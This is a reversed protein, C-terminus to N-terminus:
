GLDGRMGGAADQAAAAKVNLNQAVALRAAEADNGEMQSGDSGLCITVERPARNSFPKLCGVLVHSELSPDIADYSISRQSHTRLVDQSEQSWGLEEARVFRAM